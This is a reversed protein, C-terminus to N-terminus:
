NGYIKSIQRLFFSASSIRTYNQTSLFSLYIPNCNVVIILVRSCSAVVRKRSNFSIAHVILVRANAGQWVLVFRCVFYVFNDTLHYKARLVACPTFLTTYTLAAHRAYRWCERPKIVGASTPLRGASLLYWTATADRTSYIWALPLGGAAEGGSDCRRRSVAEYCVIDNERCLRRGENRERALLGIECRQLYAERIKSM